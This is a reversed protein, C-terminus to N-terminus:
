VRLAIGVYFNGCDDVVLAEREEQSLGGPYDHHHLAVRESEALRLVARDFTAKDPIETALSRRLDSLSVLAGNAAALKLQIMRELDPKGFDRKPPSQAPPKEATPEQQLLKQAAAFVQEATFGMPKLKAVALRLSLKIYDQPTPEARASLLKAKGTLPAVKYVRKEKILLAIIEDRKPPPWGVLLSRLKNKLETQTLPVDNLAELVRAGAQEELNPLWYVTSRAQHFRVQGAKVLQQLLARLDNKAKLASKPIAKALRTVNMPQSSQQLARLVFVVAESHMPQENLM